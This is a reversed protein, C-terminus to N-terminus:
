HPKCLFSDKGFGWIYEYANGREILASLGKVFSQSIANDTFKLVINDGTM